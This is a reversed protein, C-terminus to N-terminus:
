KGAHAVCGLMCNSRPQKFLWWTRLSSELLPVLRVELALERRELHGDAAAAAAVAAVGTAAAAGVRARQLPPLHSDELLAEAVRLTQFALERSPCLVLAQPEKSAPDLQEILPLLFALTKGSGTWAHIIADRGAALPGFAGRQLANAETINAAALNEVVGPASLGLSAFGPLGAAGPPDALLRM